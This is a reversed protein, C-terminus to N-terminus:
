FSPLAPQPPDIHARGRISPKLTSEELEPPIAGEVFAELITNPSSGDARTGTELNVRVLQIKEPVKFPEVPTQRLAQEM